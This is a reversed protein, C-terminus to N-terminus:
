SMSSTLRFHVNVKKRFPGVIRRITAIQYFVKADIPALKFIREIVQRAQEETPDQDRVCFTAPEFLRKKNYINKDSVIWPILHFIEPFVWTKKEDFSNCNMLAAHVILNKDSVKDQNSRKRLQKLLTM